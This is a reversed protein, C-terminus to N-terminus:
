CRSQQVHCGWVHLWCVAALRMCAQLMLRPAQQHLELLEITAVVASHRLEDIVPSADVEDLHAGSVAGM